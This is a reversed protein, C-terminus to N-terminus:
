AAAKRLHSLAFTMVFRGAFELKDLQIIKVYGGPKFYGINVVEYEKNNSM